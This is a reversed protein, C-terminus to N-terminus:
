IQGPETVIVSVGDPILTIGCERSGLLKEAKKLAEEVTAAPIMHLQEVMEDPAESVYIISAKKLIRAFIQSQWQDPVTESPPTNLFRATLKDADPEDRFTEFFVQGGHGDESRAIMIIVGGPSVTAEAATMGKVAQYINQDLPYGGNTSIVIHAPVAQARCWQNLFDRGKKHAQDCDGAVAHVIEKNQNLVVNVIFALGAKRAGFLMDRHIPNNEIVGTRSWPSDIFASCHNALVTERAAVGPLVSKRGGSFGAFFHPEIFGEACLLDAEVAIRNLLLRGGSPLTGLDVMNDRDDCDHLLIKEQNVIDEGFKYILEQRSTNRHCGTAILITIDAQPNGRRIEKLMAPIILKSPVPRTHDSAIIVVTQKGKALQSLRPSGVPHMLAEGILEEQGKDPELTHLRSELIGCIRHEPLEAPITGTGYPLNFTTM